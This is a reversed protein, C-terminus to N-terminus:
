WVFRAMLYASGFVVAEIALAWIVGQFIPSRSCAPAPRLRPVLRIKSSTKEPMQSAPTMDNSLRKLGLNALPYPKAERQENYLQQATHKAILEILEPKSLESTVPRNHYVMIDIPVGHRDKFQEQTMVNEEDTTSKGCYRGSGTESNQQQRNM